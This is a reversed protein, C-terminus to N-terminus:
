GKDKHKEHRDHREKRRKKNTNKIREKHETRQEHIYDKLEQNNRIYNEIEERKLKREVKIEALRQEFAETDGSKKLIKLEKRQARRKQKHAEIETLTIDGKKVMFTLVIHHLHMHIRHGRRSEKTVIEMTVDDIEKGAYANFTNGVLFLALTCLLIQINIIKTRM